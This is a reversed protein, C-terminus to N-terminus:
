VELPLKFPFADVQRFGGMKMGNLVRERRWVEGLLEYVEVKGVNVHDIRQKVFGGEVVVPFLAQLM